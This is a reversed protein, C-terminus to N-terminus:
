RTGGEAESAWDRLVPAAHCMCVDLEGNADPCAAEFRDAAERLVIATIEATERAIDARIKDAITNPMAKEPTHTTTHAAALTM